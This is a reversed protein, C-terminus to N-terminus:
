KLAASHNQLDFDSLFPSGLAPKEKGPHNGLSPRHKTSSTRTKGTQHGHPPRPLAAREQQHQSSTPHLISTPGQPSDPPNISLWGPKKHCTRHCQLQRLFAGKHKNKGMVKEHQHLPLSCIGPSLSPLEEASRVPISAAMPSDGARGGPSGLRTCSRGGLVSREKETKEKKRGRERRATM